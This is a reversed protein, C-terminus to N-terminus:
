KLPPWYPSSTARGTGCASNLLGFKVPQMSLNAYRDPTGSPGRAFLANATTNGANRQNAPSAGAGCTLTM